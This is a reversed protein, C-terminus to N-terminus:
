STYTYNLVQEFMRIGVTDENSPIQIKFSFKVNPNSGTQIEGLATAGTATPILIANASSDGIGTQHVAALGPSAPNTTVKSNYTAWTTGDFSLLAGGFDAETTEDGWGIVEAIDAAASFSGAYTGTFARVYIGAETINSLGDHRIFLQQTTSSEGNAKDGHDITSSIADGGNTLSWTINVAM